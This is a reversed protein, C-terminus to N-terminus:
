PSGTGDAALAAMLEDVFRHADGLGWSGGRPSDLLLRGHVSAWVSVAGREPTQTVRMGSEALRRVGVRWRDALADMVDAAVMGADAVGFMSRFRTKNELAFRCYAHAQAALRRAPPEGESEEDARRMAAILEEFLREVAASAVQDKDAFHRYIAPATVGAERAVERLSLSVPRMREEDSLLRTAAALIEVRLKEGEGRANRVRGRSESVPRDAYPGTHQTM